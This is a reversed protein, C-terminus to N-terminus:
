EGDRVADVFDGAPRGVPGRDRRHRLAVRLTHSAAQRDPGIAEHLMVDDLWGHAGHSTKDFVNLGNASL